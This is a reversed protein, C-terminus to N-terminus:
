HPPELARPLDRLIQRHPPLHIPPNPNDSPSRPPKIYSHAPSFGWYRMRMELDFDDTYKSYFKTNMEKM